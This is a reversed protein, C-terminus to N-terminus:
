HRKDRTLYRIVSLNYIRWHKTKNQLTVSWKSRPFMDPLEVIIHILGCNKRGICRLSKSCCAFKGQSMAKSGKSLTQQHGDQHHVLFYISTNRANSGNCSTDLWKEQLSTDSRKERYTCGTRSASKITDKSDMCLSLQYQIKCTAHYPSKCARLM